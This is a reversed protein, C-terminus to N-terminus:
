RKMVASDDQWRSGDARLAPLRANTNLDYVGVLISTASKALGAVQHADLVVEGQEWLSAPLPLAADAQGALKGQADIVHVFVQYDLPVRSLARWHLTLTDTQVDYGDLAIIGGFVADVPLQPTPPSQSARVKVRGLAATLAKSNVIGSVTYPPDSTHWGAYITAVLPVDGNLTALTLTFTERYVDGVSWYSSLKRGGLPQTELRGFSRGAQDYADLTLIYSRMVPLTVRWTMTLSVPDGSSLRDSALVAKSVEIGNDFLALPARPLSDRETMSLQPVFENGPAPKVANFVPAILTFPAIGAWLVSAGAIVLTPWFRLAKVRTVVIAIGAAVIVAVGTFSTPLLRSDETGGYLRMWPTLAIVSGLIAVPLLGAYSPIKRGAIGIAWGICAILLTIAALVDGVARLPLDANVRWLTPLIPPLMAVYQGIDLPTLRMAFRNLNNVQEWALPSGYRYWQFVYLWGVVLIAGFAAVLGHMIFLRARRGSCTQTTSAYFVAFAVPLALGLGSAKCLAALGVSAGLAFAGRKSQKRSMYRQCLVLCLAAACIVAIDNSVSSSLMIFKPNFAILAAALLSFQDKLGIQRALIYTLVVTVLGLSTSLLRLILLAQAAGTVRLIDLPTKNWRPNTSDAVASQLLDNLDNRDIPAVLIAGVAYYLPPQHAEHSPAHTLDPLAAYRAYYDVARFHAIEDFGDFLPLNYSSIFSLVIFATVILMLWFGHFGKKDNAM